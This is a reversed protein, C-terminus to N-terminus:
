AVTDGEGMPLDSGDLRNNIQEASPQEKLAELLM